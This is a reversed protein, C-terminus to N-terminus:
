KKDAAIIKKMAEIGVKIFEGNLHVTNGKFNTTAM